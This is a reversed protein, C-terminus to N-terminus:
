LCLRMYGLSGEFYGCSPEATLLGPLKQLSGPNLKWCRCPMECVNIVGNEPSAISSEPRWPHLACVHYVSMYGYRFVFMFVKVRLADVSVMLEQDEQEQKGLATASHNCADVM